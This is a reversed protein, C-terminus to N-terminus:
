RCLDDDHSYAHSRGRVPGRKRVPEEDDPFQSIDLGAAAAISKEMHAGTPRQRIDGTDCSWSKEFGSDIITNLLRAQDLSLGGDMRELYRLARSADHLHSCVLQLDLKALSAQITLENIRAILRDADREIAAAERERSGLEIERREVGKERERVDTLRYSMARERQELDKEKQRLLEYQAVERKLSEFVYGDMVVKDVLPIRQVLSDYEDAHEVAQTYERLQMTAKYLATDVHQRGKERPHEVDLGYERCLSDLYANERAEWQIQATAKGQKVFGQEKLAKVLGTQTEPGRQYGHAVPVYDIHVHPEGQEDAHYYAGILELNPNRDKWGDVFCRLINKQVRESCGYVGAIMEYVPHKKADNCVDNYYNKIRRDSRQQKDNYGRVSEGFLREYADRPSEDHWIEHCRSTDIHDEKSVVKPNRINHERAVSSGNHTAITVGM